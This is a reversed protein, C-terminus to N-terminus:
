QEREPSRVTDVVVVHRLHPMVDVVVGVRDSAAVCSRSTTARRAARMATPINPPKITNWSARAAPAGSARAAQPPV